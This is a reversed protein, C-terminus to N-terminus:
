HGTLFLLVSRCHRNERVFVVQRVSYDHTVNGRCRMFRTGPNAGRQCILRVVARATKKRAVCRWM